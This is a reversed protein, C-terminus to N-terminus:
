HKHEGHHGAKGDDAKAPTNRAAVSPAVTSVPVSLELTSAQGNADQFRLTLPVTDGKHLPQMLDMLMLHYGGPKLQVAQGAPLELVPMARMKMIDGEMKMEHVEAVGAVPTSIGVLTAGDKATLSMFAGTGRQGAVTSRVWAGTVEVGQAYLAGSALLLAATLVKLKM